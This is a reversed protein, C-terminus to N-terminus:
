GVGGNGWAGIVGHGRVFEKVDDIIWTLGATIAKKPAFILFEVM